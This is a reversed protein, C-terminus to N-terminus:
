SKSLCWQVFRQLKIDSEHIRIASGKHWLVKLVIYSAVNGELIFMELVPLIVNM